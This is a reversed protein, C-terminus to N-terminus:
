LNAILSSFSQGGQPQVTNAPAAQNKPPMVDIPQETAIPQPAPQQYTPPVYTPAQNANAQPYVPPAYMPNQTPQANATEMMPNVPAAPQQYVPPTYAPAQNPAPQQYVPPVYAPAQNPAPQQYAPQSYMPNQQPIDAQNVTLMQSLTQKMREDRTFNLLEDMFSKYPIIAKLYSAVDVYNQDTWEKFFYRKLDPTNEKLYEMLAANQVDMAKGDAKPDLYVWTNTKKNLYRFPTINDDFKSSTYDKGFKTGKKVVVMFDKGALFSFPEVKASPAFGEVATPNRLKDVMDYITFGYPYIKITNNNEPVHPDKIIYVPSYYNYYRNFNEKIAGVLDMDRKEKVRKGIMLDLTWLISQRNPISSPCDIYLKEKSIPNTLIVSHKKYWSSNLPDEWWYLFRIAAAYTNNAGKAPNPNFTDRDSTRENTTPRINQDVGTLLNM